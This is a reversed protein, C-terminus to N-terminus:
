RWGGVMWTVRAMCVGGCHVTEEGGFFLGWEVVGDEADDDGREADDEDDFHKTMLEIHLRTPIRKKLRHQLQHIPLTLTAKRSRHKENTQLQLAYRMYEHQEQSQSPPLSSARSLTLSYNIKSQNM